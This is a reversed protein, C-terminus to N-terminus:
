HLCSLLLECLTIIFELTSIIKNNSLGRAMNIGGGGGFFCVNQLMLLFTWIMKEPFMWIQDCWLFLCFCCFCACVFNVMMNTEQVPVCVLWWASAWRPGVLLERAWTLWHLKSFSRGSSGMINYIVVAYEVKPLVLLKFILKIPWTPQGSLKVQILCGEKM